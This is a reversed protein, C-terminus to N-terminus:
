FPIYNEMADMFVMLNQLEEQDGQFTSNALYTFEATLARKFTENNLLDYETIMDMYEIEFRAVRKIKNILQENTM